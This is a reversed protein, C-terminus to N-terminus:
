RADDEPAYGTRYVAVAEELAAIGQGRAAWRFSINGRDDRVRVRYDVIQGLNVIALLYRTGDEVPGQSIILETAAM